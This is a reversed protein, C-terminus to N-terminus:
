DLCSLSFKERKIQGHYEGTLIQQLEVLREEHIRLKRELEAIRSEILITTIDSEFESCM